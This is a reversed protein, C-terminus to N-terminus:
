YDVKIVEILSGFIIFDLRRSSEAMVPAKQILFIYHEEYAFPALTGDGDCNL